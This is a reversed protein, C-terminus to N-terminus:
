NGLMDCSIELSEERLDYGLTRFYHSFRNKRKTNGAYRSKETRCMNRIAPLYDSHVAQKCIRSIPPVLATLDNRAEEQATRWRIEEWPPNHLRYGDKGNREAFIKTSLAVVEAAIARSLEKERWDVPEMCESLSLCDRPRCEGGPTPELGLDLKFFDCVSVSDLVAAHAHVALDLRNHNNRGIKEDGSMLKVKKSAEEDSSSDYMESSRKRKRYNVKLHHVKVENFLLRNFGWWLKGLELPANRQGPLSRGSGIWFQLEQTSKRLDCCNDEILNQLNDGDVAVGEIAAIAELVACSNRVSPRSMRLLLPQQLKLRELYGFHPENSLFVFPRKSSHVLTSLASAFGEDHDEFFIDADEILILSIKSSSQKGEAKKRNKKKQKAKKSKPLKLNDNGALLSFGNSVQHSKTAEQLDLLLKKGTRKSSANVELVNYDLESALAYVLSTKGSAVPGSLLCVNGPARLGLSDDDSSIFVDSDDDSDKNESKKLKKVENNYEKWSKLWGSLKNVTQTNGMIEVSRPKYIDTWLSNFGDADDFVEVVERSTDFSDNLDELKKLYDDKKQKLSKLISQMDVDRYKTNLNVLADSDVNTPTNSVHNIDTTIKYRFVNERGSFDYRVDSLLPIPDSASEWLPDEDKQQVHSIVPFLFRFLGEEADKKNSSIKRMSTPLGNQLFELRAKRVQPDVAVKLRKQFLPALKVAKPKDTRNRDEDTCLKGAAVDVTEVPKGVGDFVDIDTVKKTKVKAKPVTTKSFYNLINTKKKTVSIMVESESIDGSIETNEKNKAKVSSNGAKSGTSNTAFIRIKSQIQFLSEDDSSSSEGAIVKKKKNVLELLKGKNKEKTQKRERLVDESEIERLFKTEEPIDENRLSTNVVSNRRLENSMLVDFYDKPKSKALSSGFNDDETDDQELSSDFVECIYSDPINPDALRIKIKKVKKKNEKAFESNQKEALKKKPRKNQSVTLDKM